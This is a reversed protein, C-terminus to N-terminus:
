ALQVEELEGWSSASRKLTVPVSFGPAVEPFERTMINRLAYLAATENEAPVEWLVDDHVMLLINGGLAKSAAEHQPLTKWMMMAGTSQIMTAMAAPAPFKLQPFYRRLGFGNEVYGLAKFRNLAEIRFGAAIKYEKDFSDLLTQCETRSIKVGAGRYTNQLTAAGALYSWGYFGNKALVRTVGLRAANVVHIGADCAAKLAEDGSYGALIRAELQSYDAGVFVFGPRPVYMRRAPPPQNQLNPGHATPRWTGALGKGPGDEDKYSPAFSPHVRGDNGAAVSAYTEIEKYVGKVKLLLEVLPAEQPNEAALKRLAEKDASEAGHKNFPIFMGRARFLKKLQHSSNFNVPGVKGVWETSLAAGQIQLSSLWERQRERDLAIGRLGMNILVPLGEMVVDTFLQLQHTEILQEKERLWIEHERIADLANYKEPNSENEHKWRPCDLHVSAVSNLAKKFDPQLLAAGFMSCRRKGLIPVGVEALRPEDFSYNHIVVEAEPRSLAEKATLRATENWASTWAGSNSAMAIRTINRFNATKDGTEIDVSLVPSAELVQPRTSYTTRYPRLTGDIARRVRKLDGALLPATLFGSRLVGAPHLAPIYLSAACAPPPVTAKTKVQRTDGLKIGKKPNARKYPVRVLAHRVMPQLEDRGVLYGRWDEIGGELGTLRWLAAGGLPVAVRGRFAGVASDFRDWWRDYQEPTPNGDKGEPWEGITNVIYCDTRDIEAEKFLTWLFRGSSGIFPTDRDLEERGPAM